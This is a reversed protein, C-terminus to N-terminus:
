SVLRGLYGATKQWLPSMAVPIRLIRVLIVLLGGYLFVPHLRRNRISDAVIVAILLLNSLLFVSILLARGMEDFVVMGIRAIAPTSIVLVGLTMFRKHYAPTRTTAFAAIVFGAFLTIQTLPIVTSVAVAADDLLELDRAITVLAVYVGVGITFLAWIFGVSGVRRHVVMNGEFALSAQVLYLAIWVFFLIAHLHLLPAVSVRASGVPIWYTPIFGVLVVALVVVSTTLYLPNRKSLIPKLKAAKM